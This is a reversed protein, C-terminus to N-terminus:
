DPEPTPPFLTLRGCYKCRWQDYVQSGDARRTPNIHYVGKYGCQPCRTFERPLNGSHDPAFAM